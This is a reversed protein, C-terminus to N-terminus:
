PGRLEVVAMSIHEVMPVKHATVEWCCWLLGSVDSAHEALKQESASVVARRSALDTDFPLSSQSRLFSPSARETQARHVAAERAGLAAERAAIASERLAALQRSRELREQIAEREGAERSLQAELEQHRHEAQRQVAVITQKHETSKRELQQAAREELMQCAAQHEAVARELQLSARVELARCTDRHESLPIWKAAQLHYLLELLTVVFLGCLGVSETCKKRVREASLGELRKKYLGLEAELEDVAVRLRLCDTCPQRPAAPVLAKVLTPERRRRPDRNVIGTVIGRGPAAKRTSPVAAQVDDRRTEALGLRSPVHQSGSPLGVPAPTGAVVAAKGDEGRLGSAQVPGPRVHVHMHSSISSSPSPIRLQRDPPAALGAGDRHMHETHVRAPAQLAASRKQRPSVHTPERTGKRKRAAPLPALETPHNLPEDNSAREPLGAAPLGVPKQVARSQEERLQKETLSELLSAQMCPRFVALLCLTWLARGLQCHPSTIESSTVDEQSQLIGTAALLSEVVARVDLIGRVVHRVYFIYGAVGLSRPVCVSRSPLAMADALSCGEHAPAPLAPANHSPIPGSEPVFYSTVRRCNRARLGM